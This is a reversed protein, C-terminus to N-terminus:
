QYRGGVAMCLIRKSVVRCTLPAAYRELRALETSLWLRNQIDGTELLFDPERLQKEPKEGFEVLLRAYIREQGPSVEWIPLQARNVIQPWIRDVEVYEGAVILKQLESAVEVMDLAFQPDDQNDMAQQRHKTEQDKLWRLGNVILLETPLKVGYRNRDISIVGISTSVLSQSPQQLPRISM